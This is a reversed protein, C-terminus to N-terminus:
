RRHHESIKKLARQLKSQPLIAQTLLKKEKCLASSGNTYVSVTAIAVM